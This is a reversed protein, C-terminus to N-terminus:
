FEEETRVVRPVGMEKQLITICSMLSNSSLVTQTPGAEFKCCRSSVLFFSFGASYCLSHTSARLLHFPIFVSTPGWPWGAHTLDSSSRKPCPRRLPQCAPSYFYSGNSTRFGRKMEPMAPARSSQESTRTFTQIVSTPWPRQEGSAGVFRPSSGPCIPASPRSGM